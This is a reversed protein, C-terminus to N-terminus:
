SLYASRRSSGISSSAHWRKPAPPTIAPHNCFAPICPFITAGAEAALTMNRMHIRNFATERVCLITCGKWAVSIRFIRASFGFDFSSAARGSYLDHLYVASAMTVSPLSLPAIRLTQVWASQGHVMRLFLMSSNIRFPFGLLLFSVAFFREGLCRAHPRQSGDHCRNWHPQHFTIEM